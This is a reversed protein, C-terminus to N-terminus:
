PSDRAPGSRVGTPAAFAPVVGNAGLFPQVGTVGGLALANPALAWAEELWRSLQSPHVRLADTQAGGANAFYSGLTTFM